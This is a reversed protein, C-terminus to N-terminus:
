GRKAVRVAFLDCNHSPETDPKRLPSHWRGKISATEEMQAGALLQRILAVDYGMSMSAHEPFRSHAGGGIPVFPRGAHRPETEDPYIAMFTVVALAGPKLVRAMESLYNAVGALPMHMFVEFACAVDFSDDRYPFRVADPPETGDPRFRANHVDLVDFRFGPLRPVYERNLWEIAAPAIDFGAYTGADDLYSALEYALRGLGCGVEVVAASPFLGFHELLALQRPGRRGGADDGVNHIGPEPLPLEGRVCRM